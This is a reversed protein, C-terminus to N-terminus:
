ALRVTIHHWHRMVERRVEDIAMRLLREMADVLNLVKQWERFVAWLTHADWDSAPIDDMALEMHRWVHRWAGMCRKAELLLVVPWRMFEEPRVRSPLSRHYDPQQPRLQFQHWVDTTVRHMGPHRLLEASATSHFTVGLMAAEALAQGAQSMFRLYENDCLHGADFLKKGQLSSGVDFEFRELMRRLEWMSLSVSRAADEVGGRL